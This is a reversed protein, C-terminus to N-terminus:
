AACGLGTLLNDLNKNMMSLYNDASDSPAKEMTYLYLVQVGTDEVISDVSSAQTYEEIFIVSIQDENIKDIVKQIDAASPEGEPDLGHVTVFEVGYRVTLYSYANHNAAAINNSCTGSDGFAADYGIHLKDLELMFAQANATFTENGAPFLEILIGLVEETQAKFSIPDLWSHPDYDFGDEEEDAVITDEASGSEGDTHGGEDHGGEDHGEDHGGEDHGGHGGHGGHDDHDDHGEGMLIFISIDSPVAFGYDGENDVHITLYGRTGDNPM